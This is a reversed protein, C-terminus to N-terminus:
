LPFDGAPFPFITVETMKGRRIKRDIVFIGHQYRIIGSKLRSIHGVPAFFRGFIGSPSVNNGDVRTM